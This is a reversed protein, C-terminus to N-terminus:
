ESLRVDIIRRDGYVTAVRFGKEQLQRIQRRSAIYGALIAKIADVPLFPIVGVLLLVPLTSRLWVWLGIVGFLYIPILGCLSAVLMRLFNSGRNSEALMGTLYAAAVFGILYGGTPGVLVGPGSEGGAFVPLGILGLLLYIMQALSGLRKGLVAGSLLVFFVQLTVPVPTIPLPISVWAGLATLVSFVASVTVDRPKLRVAFLRVVCWMQTLM